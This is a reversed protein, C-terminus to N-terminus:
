TADAPQLNFSTEHHDRQIKLQTRNATHLPAIVNKSACVQRQLLSRLFLQRSTSRIACPNCRNNCNLKQKLRSKKWKDIEARQYLRMEAQGGRMVEVNQYRAAAEAGSGAPFPVVFRIPRNPYPSEARTNQLLAPSAVLVMAARRTANVSFLDKASRSETPLM